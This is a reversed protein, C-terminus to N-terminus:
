ALPAAVLQPRVAARQKKSQKGGPPTGPTGGPAPAKRRGQAQRAAVSHRQELEALEDLEDPMLGCALLGLDSLDVEVALSAADSSATSLTGSLTGAGCAAAPPLPSSLTLPRRRRLRPNMRVLWCIELM